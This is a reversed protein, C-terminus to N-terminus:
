RRLSTNSGGQGRLDLTPTRAIFRQNGPLLVGKDGLGQLSVLDAPHSTRVLTVVMTVVAAAAMVVAAGAAVAAANAVPNIPDGGPGVPKIKTSGFKLRSRLDILDKTAHPGVSGCFEEDLVVDFLIQDNLKKVVNPNLLVGHEVAYRKPDELFRRAEDPQKVLEKIFAVQGEVPTFRVNNLREIAKEREEATTAKDLELYPGAASDTPM